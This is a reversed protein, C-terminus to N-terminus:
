VHPIKDIQVMCSTATDHLARWKGKVILDQDLGGSLIEGDEYKVRPFTFVYQDGIDSELTYSLAFDDADLFAQYETGNEFYLEVDGSLDLRGLAIGALQLSGLVEQGRLSNNLAMNLTRLGAVMPAGDKSINGVGVAATFPVNGDGPNQITAGAIQTDAMSAGLGMFGFAGTVIAGVACNLSMSGVRCGTFNQFKAVALDQFHKQITWSLLDVGNKMTFTGDLNDTWSSCLAGQLFEDFSDYSFEFNIDGSADGGVQLLDATARDARIEDSTVNRINRKLSEGTYRINQFVPTAPTQGFVTERVARLATRNSTGAQM